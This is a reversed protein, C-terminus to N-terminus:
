TFQRKKSKVKHRQAKMKGCAEAKTGGGNKIGRSFGTEKRYIEAM